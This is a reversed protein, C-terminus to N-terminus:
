RLRARGRSRTPKWLPCATQDAEELAGPNGPANLERLQGALELARQLILRRLAKDLFSNPLEDVFRHLLSHGDELTKIRRMREVRAKERMQSVVILVIGSILLLALVGIIAITTMGLVRQVM